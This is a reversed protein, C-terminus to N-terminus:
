INIMKVKDNTTDFNAALLERASSFYKKTLRCKLTFYHTEFTKVNKILISHHLQPSNADQNSGFRVVSIRTNM